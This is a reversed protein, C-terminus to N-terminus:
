SLDRGMITRKLRKRVLCRNRCVQRTAGRGKAKQPHVLQKFMSYQCIFHWLMLHQPTHINAKKKCSGFPVDVQLIAQVARFQCLGRLKRLSTKSSPGWCSATELGGLAACVPAAATAASTASTASAAASPDQSELWKATSHVQHKPHHNPVFVYVYM